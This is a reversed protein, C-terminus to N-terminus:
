CGRDRIGDDSRTVDPLAARLDRERQRTSLVATVIGRSTIADLPM